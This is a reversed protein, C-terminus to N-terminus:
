IFIFNLNLNLNLSTNECERLVFFGVFDLLWIYCFELNFAGRVEFLWTALPKLRDLFTGPLVHTRDLMATIWIELSWSEKKLWISQVQCFSQARLNGNWSQPLAEQLRAIFHRIEVRMEHRSQRRCCWKHLLYRNELGELHDRCAKQGLSEMAERKEERDQLVMCNNRSKRIKWSTGHSRSSREKRKTGEQWTTGESRHSWSIRPSRYSM